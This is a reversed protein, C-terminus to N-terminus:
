EFIIKVKDGDKWVYNEFETNNVENVYFNLNGPLTGCLDGNCKDSICTSNFKINVDEHNFFDKLTIPETQLITQTKNDYKLREEFHLLNREKHTHTATKDGAELPLKIEEGCVKIEVETHAHLAIVCNDETECVVFTEGTERVSENYISVSYIIFVILGLIVLYMIIQVAKSGKKEM